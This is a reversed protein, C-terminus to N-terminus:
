RMFGKKILYKILNDREEIPLENIRERIKKEDMADEDSMQWFGFKAMQKRFELTEAQSFGDIKPELIKNYDEQSYGFKKWLTHVGLWVVTAMNVNNRKAVERVLERLEPTVVLRAENSKPVPLKKQWTSQPTSELAISLTKQFERNM